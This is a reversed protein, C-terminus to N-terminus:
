RDSAGAPTAGSVPRRRAGQSQVLAVGSIVVVAGLLMSARVPEGLVVVGLTVAVVPILYTVTSTRTAGIEGLLRYYLLYAIGTGLVGLGTLAGLVSPTLTPAGTAVVPAGLWLVGAACALQGAALVLPPHGRGSLFRRMYIFGVGYCAAAGVIALQPLLPVRDAAAAGLEVPGVVVAVGVFGLALGVARRAHLREDTLALTAMLTTFLPTAANLVGALGSPVQQQGWALLLWPIVNAILGAALLHAWIVPRRPLAARLAAVVLGLVLAGLTLRGLVVQPPSLGELALDIFLFSSGWLCALAGLAVAARASM